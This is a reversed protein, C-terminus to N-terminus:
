VFTVGTLPLLPAILPGHFLLSRLVAQAVFGGVWGAILPLRGTFRANLFTGTCIILLPLAWDAWGPLNETFMYPAAVGVWPFCLLTTSIGTNSPNLFHRTGRGAPIRFITKSSIAVVAAFAFPWLRDSGYLLMSVANGAIHASLLFDVVQGPRGIYNPRRRQGWAILTEFLIEAAYASGLAVLWQAWSQEFGLVARGVVNLITIAVAFRRLGGLRSTRGTDVSNSM